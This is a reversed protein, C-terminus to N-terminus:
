YTADDDAEITGLRCWAIPIKSACEACTMIRRNGLVPYRCCKNCLATSCVVCLEALFNSRWVGCRCRVRESKPVHMFVRMRYLSTFTAMEEAVPPRGLQFTVYEIAGEPISANLAVQLPDSIHSEDGYHAWFDEDGIADDVAADLHERIEEDNRRILADWKEKGYRLIEILDQEDFGAEKALLVVDIDDDSTKM